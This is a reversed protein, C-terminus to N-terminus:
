EGAADQAGASQDCDAASELEALVQELPIGKQDGFYYPLLDLLDNPTFQFRSRFQEYAAREEKSEYVADAPPPVPGGRQWLERAFEATKGDRQAQRWRERLAEFSKTTSEAPTDNM